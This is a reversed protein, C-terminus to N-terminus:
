NIKEMACEIIEDIGADGLETKLMKEFEKKTKTWGKYLNEIENQIIDVNKFSVKHTFKPRVQIPILNDLEQCNKTYVSKLDKAMSAGYDWNDIVNYLKNNINIWYFQSEYEIMGERWLSDRIADLILNESYSMFSDDYDVKLTSDPFVCKGNEVRWAEYYEQIQENEKNLQIGTTNTVKVKQVIYGNNVGDKTFADVNWKIAYKYYAYPRNNDENGIVSFYEM